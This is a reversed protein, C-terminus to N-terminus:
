IRMHKKSLEWINLSWGDGDWYDDIIMLLWWYDDIIMLVWWYDDIIMLLGLKGHHDM